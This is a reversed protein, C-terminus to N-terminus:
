YNLKFALSKREQGFVFTGYPQANGIVLSNVTGIDSLPISKLEEFNSVNATELVARYALEQLVPPIPQLFASQTIAKSFPVTGKAGGYATVQHMIAGGGASEGM